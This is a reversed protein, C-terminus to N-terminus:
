CIFLCESQTQFGSTWIIILKSINVNIEVQVLESSCYSSCFFVWNKSMTIESPLENVDTVKVLVEFTAFTSTDSKLTSKLILLHQSDAEYNFEAASSVQFVSIKKKKFKMHGIPSFLIYILVRLLPGM